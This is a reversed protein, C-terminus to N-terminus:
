KLKSDRVQLGNALGFNFTSPVTLDYLKPYNEVGILNIQIIRDLVVDNQIDYNRCTYSNKLEQLKRNKLPHLFDVTSQFILAWQAGITLTHVPAIDITQFNNEHRQSTKTRGFIGLRSCLMSIGEILRSSVSSVSLSSKSLTGDGSFYGDLIGVIFIKPAIFAFDPVFKNRSGHGLIKTLFKALLTSFGRVGASTGVDTTKTHEQFNIGNNEFWTKVFQRITQDNNSINVSGSEITANGEALFLGIFVGNDRTLEFQEFIKSDRKASYSYIFGSEVIGRNQARQLMAKRSYPLTFRKGNNREWWGQPIHFKNGMAEKMLRSAIKFDSGHIYEKKSFYNSLAISHITNSTNPLFTTVPLLDGLKVDPSLKPIFQDGNWVLLSQSAAVTVSRGSYTIVEYLLDGPDHRSLATVSGWTVVGLENMTPILISNTVHLMELNRDEKTLEINTKDQEMCTDIWEGIRVYRCIDNELIIIPTDGTV